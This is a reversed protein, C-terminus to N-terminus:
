KKKTKPIRARKAWDKQKQIREAEEQAMEKIAEKCLVLENTVKLIEEQSSVQEKLGATQCQVMKIALKNYDSLCSGYKGLMADHSALTHFFVASGGVVAGILLSAFLWFANVYKRM